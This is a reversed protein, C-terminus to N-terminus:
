IKIQLLSMACCLMINKTLNRTRRTEALDGNYKPAGLDVEPCNGSPVFNIVPFMTYGDPAPGNAAETDSEKKHKGQHFM